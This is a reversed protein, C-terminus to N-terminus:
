YKLSVKVYFLFIAAFDDLSRQNEQYEILFDIFTDLIVIEFSKLSLCKGNNKMFEKLTKLPNETEPGKSGNIIYSINSISLQLSISKQCIRKAILCLHADKPTVWVQLGINIFTRYCIMTILPNKM